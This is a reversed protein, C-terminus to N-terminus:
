SRQAMEVFMQAYTNLIADANDRMAPEMFPYPKTGPHNVMKAFVTQGSPDKWALAKKNVPVIVHPRSGMEVAAAYAQDTYVIGKTPGQVETAISRRLNGTQNKFRGAKVAKADNAVIVVIRQMAQVMYGDFSSSIKLLSARLADLGNIQLFLSKTDPTNAM